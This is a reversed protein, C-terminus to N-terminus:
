ADSTTFKAFHWVVVELKHAQLLFPSKKCPCFSKKMNGWKRRTSAQHVFLRRRGCRTQSPSPCPPTARPSGGGSPPASAPSPSSRTCSSSRCLLYPLELPNLFQREGGKLDFVAERVDKPWNLTFFSWSNALVERASDRWDRAERRSLSSASESEWIGRGLCRVLM